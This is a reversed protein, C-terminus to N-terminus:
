GSSPQIDAVHPGHDRASSSGAPAFKGDTTEFLTPRPQGSMPAHLRADARTALVTISDAVGELLRVNERLRNRLGADDLTDHLGRNLEAFWALSCQDLMERQSDRASGRSDTEHWQRLLRQMRANLAQAQELEPRLEALLSLDTLRRQFVLQCLVGWYYAYDWTVK